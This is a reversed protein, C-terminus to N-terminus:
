YLIKPNKKRKKRRENISYQSHDSDISDILSDNNDVVDDDDDDIISTINIRKQNKKRLTTEMEEKESNDMSHSHSQYSQQSQQSQQSQRVNSNQNKRKRLHKLRENEISSFDNQQSQQSQQSHQTNKMKSVFENFVYKVREKIFTKERKNLKIGEFLTLYKKYIEKQTIENISKHTQEKLNKKIIDEILFDTNGLNNGNKKNSDITKKVILEHTSEEVFQRPYDANKITQEGNEITEYKKIMSITINESFISTLRHYISLQNVSLNTFGIINESQPTQPIEYIKEAEEDKEGQTENKQEEEDYLADFLTNLKKKTSNKPLTVNKEKDSREIILHDLLQKVLPSKAGLNTTSILRDEEVKLKYTRMLHPFIADDICYGSILKKGSEHSSSVNNKLYTKVKKMLSKSFDGCVNKEDCKLISVHFSIRSKGNGYDVVKMLSFKTKRTGNILPYIYNCEDINEDNEDDDGHEVFENKTGKVLVVPNCEVNKLLMESITRRIQGEDLRMASIDINEIHEEYKVEKQTARKHNFLKQVFKEDNKGWMVIYNFDIKFEDNNAVNKNGHNNSNFILDSFAGNYIDRNNANDKNQQFQNDVLNINGANNSTAKLNRMPLYGEHKSIIDNKTNNTLILSDKWLSAIRKYVEYRFPDDLAEHCLGVCFVVIEVNDYLYPNIDQLREISFGKLKDGSESFLKIIANLIVFKRVLKTLQEAMRGGVVGDTVTTLLGNLINNCVILSPEKIVGIYILKEVHFSIAQYSRIFFQFNDLNKKNNTKNLQYANQLEIISAFPREFGSVPFILFRTDLAIDKNVQDVNSAHLEVGISECLIPDCLLKGNVDKELREASVEMSTLKQKLLTKGFNNVGMDNMTENGEEFVNIYDNKFQTPVNNKIMFQKKAKMNGGKSTKNSTFDRKATTYSLTTVTRPIYTKKLESFYYSKSAFFPGRLGFNIHLNKGFRYADTCGIMITLLLRHGNNVFSLKEFCSFLYIMCNGFPTMLNDVVPLVIKFNENLNLKTWEVINHAENSILSDENLCKDCYLQTMKDKFDKDNENKELNMQLMVDSTIKLKFFEDLELEIGNLLGFDMLASRWLEFEENQTLKTDSSLIYDEERIINSDVGNENEDREIYAELGKTRLELKLEEDSENLNEENIENIKIQKEKKKDLFKQIRTRMSLLTYLSMAMKYPSISQENKFCLYKLPVVNQRFAFCFNDLEKYNGYKRQEIIVSAKKRKKIITNTIKMNVSLSLLNDILLMDPVSKSPTDENIGHKECQTLTDEFELNLKDYCRYFDELEIFNNELFNEYQENSKNKEKSLELGKNKNEKIIKTMVDHMKQEGQGGIVLWFRIAFLEKKKKPLFETPFSELYEVEFDEIKLDNDIQIYEVFISAIKKEIITSDLFQPTKIKGLDMEDEEEEEEEEEENIAANNRRRRKGKSKKTSKKSNMKKLTKLKNDNIMELRKVTDCLLNKMKMFESQFNGKVGTVYFSQPDFVEQFLSFIIFKNDKISFKKEGCVNENCLPVLLNEM